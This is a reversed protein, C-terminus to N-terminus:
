LFFLLNYFNNFNIFKVNIKEKYKKEITNNGLCVFLSARSLVM